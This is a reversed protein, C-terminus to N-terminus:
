KKGKKGTGKKEASKSGAIKNGREDRDSLNIRYKRAKKKFYRTYYWRADETTWNLTDKELKGIKNLLLRANISVAHPGDIADLLVPIDKAELKTVKFGALTFGNVLWIQRSKKGNKEVWSNIKTECEPTLQSMGSCFGKNAIVSLTNLLKLYNTEDSKSVAKALVELHEANPHHLIYSLMADLQRSDFVGSEAMKEIEANFVDRTEKTEFRSLANILAERVSPVIEKKLRASLKPVVEENMQESAMIAATRVDNDDADIFKMIRASNPSAAGLLSLRQLAAAQQKVDSKKSSLTKLHREVCKERKPVPDEQWEHILSKDICGACIDEDSCYVRIHFHDNHAAQIQVVADFRALLEESAERIMLERRIAARIHKALFIFQVNIKPHTLLKEVLTTNKELDFKLVGLPSNAELRRNVKYMNPPTAFKGESDLMYYGLDADRGANHSISYPIDGGERLGMNGLFLITGPYKKQMDHAVDKIVTILSPTGYAIGREYQVALQRYESSPYPLSQGNILYGDRTDGISFTMSAEKDTTYFHRTKEPSPQRINAWTSRIRLM